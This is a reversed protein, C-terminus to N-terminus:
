VATFRLYLEEGAPRSTYGDLQEMGSDDVISTSFNSYIAAVVGKM